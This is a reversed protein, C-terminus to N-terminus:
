NGSPREVADVILMEVMGKAPELKLGLQEQLANFISPGPEATTADDDPTWTLTFNYFGTLSTKDIVQKGVRSSLVSALGSMNTGRGRLETKGLGIGMGKSEVPTLTPGKKGVLLNFVSQEKSERHMKLHFRDALLAQVMLRLEPITAPGPAKAEIDFLETDAWRPGGSIQVDRATYAFAM